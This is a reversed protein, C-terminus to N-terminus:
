RRELAFNFGVMKEKKNMKADVLRIAAFFGTSSLKQKLRDVIEFSSARGYIRIEKEEISLNDMRLGSFNSITRSLVTLVDLVKEGGTLDDLWKHKSTEEHIKQKMQAFEQGKVITKTEPFTHSFIQTISDKLDSYQKKRIHLNQYTNFTYLFVLLLFAASMFVFIKKLDVSRKGAFEEKKMDFIKDPPEAVSVALGLPVSLRAQLDTQMDGFGHKMGDFPRWLSTKINTALGIRGAMDDDIGSHGTILIESLLIDPKELQYLKFTHILQDTDEPREPLIRIFDLRNEHIIQVVMKGNGFHMISIAQGTDIRDDKLCLSFLALDDLSVVHPELDAASLFMLHQAMIEKQVGVAIINGEPGPPLFDVLMDDVPYPAYPEMQFKIIKGIKKVKSFSLPIQRIIASSAPLCTILMEHKLDEDRFLEELERPLDEPNNVEKFAIGDIELGKLSNTIRVAGIFTDTIELGLVSKPAFFDKLPNLM